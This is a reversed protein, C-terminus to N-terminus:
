FFNYIFRSSGTNKNIITSQEINPYLRIKYAKYIKMPGGDKFKHNNNYRMHM